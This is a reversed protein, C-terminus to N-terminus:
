GAALRGGLLAHVAALGENGRDIIQQAELFQELLDDRAPSQIDVGALIGLTRLTRRDAIQPM